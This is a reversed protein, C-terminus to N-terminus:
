WCPTPSEFHKSMKMKMKMKGPLLGLQRLRLRRADHGGGAAGAGARTLHERLAQVDEDEGRVEDSRFHLQHHFSSIKKIADKLVNPRVALRNQHHEEIWKYSLNFYPLEYFNTQVSAVFLIFELYYNMPWNTSIVSVDGLFWKKTRCFM